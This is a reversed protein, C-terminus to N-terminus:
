TIDGKGSDKGSQRSGFWYGLVLSGASIAATLASRDQMVVVGYILLGAMTGGFLYTIRRRVKSRAVELAEKVEKGLGEAPM